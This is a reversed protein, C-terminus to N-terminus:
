IQYFIKMMLKTTTYTKKKINTAPSSWKGYHQEVYFGKEKLKEAHKWWSDTQSLHSKNTIAEEFWKKM